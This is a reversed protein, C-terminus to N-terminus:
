QMSDWFGFSTQLETGRLEFRIIPGAMDIFLDLQKQIVPIFAMHLAYLDMTDEHNLLGADELFYFFHYFLSICGSFLDRWLHEIRQNHTIRGTIVSGRGVGRQLHDLM